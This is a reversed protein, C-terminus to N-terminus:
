LNVRPAQNRPAGNVKKLRAFKASRIFTSCRANIKAFHRAVVTVVVCVCLGHRDALTAYNLNPLTVALGQAKM